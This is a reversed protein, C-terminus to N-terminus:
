SNADEEVEDALHENTVVNSENQIQTEPAMETEM